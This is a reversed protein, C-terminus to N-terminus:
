IFLNLGSEETKALYTAVGAIEVGDILEEEKIGMIDMSMACAILNVGLDKAQKLLMEPTDVNKQEMVKKMMTTGMGGMNMKSIKLESIGEPMMKSFMKEMTDKEVTIGKKRLINLGWFTFFMTVKKGMSAAGTAIILSAMAKDLDGSFVVITAGDKVEEAMKELNVKGKSIIAKFYGDEIDLSLLVNGTKECWAGIDRKFGPESAKVELIEGDNLEQLAKYTAAIPGPCQLGRADISKTVKINKKLIDPNDACSFNGSELEVDESNATMGHQERYLSYGGAVNTASIGSNELVRCMLYGRSGIQCSVYVDKDKPINDIQSRLDGCCINVSGPITGLITEEPERVDILFAGEEVIKDIEKVSVDKLINDLKNQAMYGAVNVPDKAGSYPPAYTLELDTLDDVTLGGYIAAAIVDIRKETGSGGIAQAGLVRGSPLEYLVKLNIPMAGPYYGAHNNAVVNVFDFEKGAAKLRKENWGTSAATLDFIKAVSSGLFGKFSDEKGMIVNATIRAQKNAPAALALSMPEKYIYDKFEIADGLAFINEDSTRMHEDVLIHGRQGLKIGSSKVFETDPRVGISLITIDSKVKKGSSTVILKGKDEFRDVGDSLILEVGKEKLHNHLITAMELDFPAMIQDLAEILTVKIGQEALNEVMEVGIFGGGIVVAKEPKNEDIFNKIADTDPITRLTFVNEAENLGKIPPKLPSAGPSLVLTDYSLEYNKNEKINFVTLKKNESDIEKLENFVRIDLNYKRSLEEVTQVLLTDREAITGGIYYPLGCNAFSIYEGKELIIIETDESLRRLRTATSAGGAVGGVIVITKKM